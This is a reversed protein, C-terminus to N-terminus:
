SGRCGHIACGSNAEWCSEHHPTTCGPCADPADGPVPEGCVPCTEPAPPLGFDGPRTGDEEVGLRERVLEALADATALDTLGPFLPLVRDETTLAVVEFGLTPLGADDGHGHVLKRTHIRTLTERPLDVPPDLAFPRDAARVREEGVRVERRSLRPALLLYAISYFPIAFLTLLGAFVMPQVLHTHPTTVAVGLALLLFTGVLGGLYAGRPHRLTCLDEKRSRALVGPTERPVLLVSGDPLERTGPAASALAGAAQVRVLRFEDSAPKSV